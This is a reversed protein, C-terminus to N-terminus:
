LQPSWTAPDTPDWMPGLSTLVFAPQGMRIVSGRAWGAAPVPTKQVGEVTDADWTRVFTRTTTWDSVGQSDAEAVTFRGSPQHYRKYINPFQGGQTGTKKQVIPGQPNGSYSQPSWAM